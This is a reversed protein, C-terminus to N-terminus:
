CLSHRRLAHICTQLKTHRPQSKAQNNFQSGLSGLWLQLFLLRTQQPVKVDTNCQDRSGIPKRFSPQSVGTCELEARVM